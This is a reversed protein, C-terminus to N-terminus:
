ERGQEQRKEVRRRMQEWGTEEWRKKVRGEKRWKKSVTDEINSQDWRKKATKEKARERRMEEKRQQWPDPKTEKRTEGRRKQEWIM